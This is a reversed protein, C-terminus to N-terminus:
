NRFGTNCAYINYNINLLVRITQDVIDQGLLNLQNPVKDEEKKKRDTAGLGALLGFDAQQVHEEGLGLGLSEMLGSGTSQLREHSQCTHCYFM